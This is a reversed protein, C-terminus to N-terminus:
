TPEEKSACRPCLHCWHGNEDQWVLWGQRRRVRTPVGDGHIWHGCHDCHITVIHTLSM